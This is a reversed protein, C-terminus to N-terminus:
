YSLFDKFTTIEGDNILKAFERDEKSFFLPNPSAMTYARDITISVHDLYVLITSLTETELMDIAIRFKGVSFDYTGDQNKNLLHKKIFKEINNQPDSGITNVRQSYEMLDRVGHALKKLFICKDPTM